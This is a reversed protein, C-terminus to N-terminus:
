EGTLKQIINMLAYYQPNALFLMGNTLLLASWVFIFATLIVFVGTTIAYDSDNAIKKYSRRSVFIMVVGVILLIAGWVLDGIAFVYVQRLLIAWLQPSATQFWEVLKALLPELGKM